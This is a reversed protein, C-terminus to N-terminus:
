ASLGPREATEELVIADVAAATRALKLIPLWRGRPATSLIGVGLFDPCM